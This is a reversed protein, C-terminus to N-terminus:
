NKKYNPTFAGNSPQVCKRCSDIHVKPLLPPSPNNNDMQGTSTANDAPMYEERLSTVRPHLLQVSCGYGYPNVTPLCAAAKRLQQQKISRTSMRATSRPVASQSSRSTSMQVTTRPVTSQLGGTAIRRQHQQTLYITSM